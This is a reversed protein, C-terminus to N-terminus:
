PEDDLPNENLWLRLIRGDYTARLPYWVGKELPLRKMGRDLLVAGGKIEMFHVCQKAANAMLAYGRGQGVGVQIGAWGEGTLCMEMAYDFTGPAERVAVPTQIPLAQRYQIGM